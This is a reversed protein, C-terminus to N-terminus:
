KSKNKTAQEKKKAENKEFKRRLFRRFMWMVLPLITALLYFKAVNIGDIFFEYICFCFVFFSILLWFRELQLNIKSNM